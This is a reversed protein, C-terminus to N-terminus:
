LRGRIKEKWIVRSKLLIIDFCLFALGGCCAFILNVTRANKMIDAIGMLKFLASFLVSVIVAYIALIIITRLVPNKVKYIRRQMLPYWGFAIYVFMVEPQPVLLFGAIIVTLYTLFAPKEGYESVIPILAISAFIPAIYTGIGIAAGIIMLVISIGAFLGCMATKKTNSKKSM